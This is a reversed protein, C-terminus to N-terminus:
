VAFERRGQPAAASPEVAQSGRTYGRLQEPRLWVEHTGTRDSLRVDATGTQRDEVFVRCRLWSGQYLAWTFGASEGRPVTLGDSQM